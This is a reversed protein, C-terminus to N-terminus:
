FRNLRQPSVSGDNHLLVIRLLNAATNRIEAIMADSPPQPLGEDPPLESGDDVGLSEIVADLQAIARCAIFRRGRWNKRMRLEEALDM